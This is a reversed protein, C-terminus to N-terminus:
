DMIHAVKVGFAVDVKDVAKDEPQNHKGQVVATKNPHKTQSGASRQGDM